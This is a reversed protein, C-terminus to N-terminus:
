LEDGAEWDDANDSLYEKTAQRSTKLDAGPGGFIFVRFYDVALRSFLYLRGYQIDSAVHDISDVSVGFADALMQKFDEVSTETDEFNAEFIAADGDQRIAWHNRLQPMQESDGPGLAMLLDMVIIWQASTLALNDTGIYFHRRM